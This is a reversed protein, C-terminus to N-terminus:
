YNALFYMGLLILDRCKNNDFDATEPLNRIYWWFVGFEPDIRLAYEEFEPDKSTQGFMLYVVDTLIHGFRAYEDAYKGDEIYACFQEVNYLVQEKVTEDDKEVWTKQILLMLNKKFSSIIKSDDNGAIIGPFVDKANFLGSITVALSDVDEKKTADLIQGVADIIKPDVFESILDPKITTM